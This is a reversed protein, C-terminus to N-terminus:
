LEGDFGDGYKKFFDIVKKEEVGDAVDYYYFSYEGFISDDSLEIQLSM